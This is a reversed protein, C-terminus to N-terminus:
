KGRWKLFGSVSILLRLPLNTLGHEWALTDWSLEMGASVLKKIAETILTTKDLSSEIKLILLMYNNIPFLGLGPLLCGATVKLGQTLFVRETGPKESTHLVLLMSSTGSLGRWLVQRPNIIKARAELYRKTWVTGQNTCGTWLKWPPEKLRPQSIDRRGWRQKQGMTLSLAQLGSCLYWHPVHLLVAPLPDEWRLLWTGEVNKGLVAGRGQM